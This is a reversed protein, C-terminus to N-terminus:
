SKRWHVITWNIREVPDTIGREARFEDIAQRCPALAYDDVIVYGGPVVRDYLAHLVDLTSTYLDGDMRLLAIQAVPAEPLTDAFLGPLFRVGDDLLDFASFNDTVERQSALMFPFREATLDLNAAVDPGSEPPPVGEFCDAVWLNRVEEGFARHLARMFIASGGRWTGADVFDGAIGDAFLIESLREIHDLGHFGIFSHAHIMPWGDLMEGTKKARELRARTESERYRIDRVYISDRLIEPTRAARALRMENEVATLGTLARKMLGLYRDRVPDPAGCPVILGAQRFMDLVGAVDAGCDEPGIEYEACLTSVIENQSTVRACLDWIRETVGELLLSHGGCTVVVGGATSRQHCLTRRFFASRDQGAMVVDDHM